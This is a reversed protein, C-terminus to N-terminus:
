LSVAVFKELETYSWAPVAGKKTSVYAGLCNAFDAAEALPAHQLIKVVLGASFADGAGSSDLPTIFYGPDFEEESQTVLYCGAAGLTLAAMQIVHKQILKRLFTIDDDDSRLGQKLLRCEEKNLKIVDSVILSDHVNKEVQANWQRINLDCIKLATTAKDLFTYIAERSTESRQALQGFFVADMNPAMDEWISDVRMFDFAVDRTCDYQPQGAADLSIKVSGTPKFIDTQVGDVNIQFSKVERLLDRGAQDDGVRAFLFAEHGSMAVHACFNAPSGGVYKERGYVDWLVEGLGAIKLIRKKEDPAPM